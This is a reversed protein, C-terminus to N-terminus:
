EGRKREKEEKEETARRLALGLRVTDREREDPAKGDLKVEWNREGFSPLSGLPYVSEVTEIANYRLDLYELSYMRSLVFVDKIANNSLILKKVNGLLQNWQQVSSIGNDKETIGPFRDFKEYFVAHDGGLKYFIFSWGGRKRANLVHVESADSDSILTFEVRHEIHGRLKKSWSDKVSSCSCFISPIASIRWWEHIKKCERLLADVPPLVQLLSQHILVRQGCSRLSKDGAEVRKSECGFVLDE